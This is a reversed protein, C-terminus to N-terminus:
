YKAAVIRSSHDCVRSERHPLQRQNMVVQPFPHRAFDFLDSQKGTDIPQQLTQM